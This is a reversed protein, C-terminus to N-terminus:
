GNDTCFDKKLLDTLPKTAGEKEKVRDVLLNGFNVGNKRCYSELWTEHRSDRINILHSFLTGVHTTRKGCVPCICAMIHGGISEKYM